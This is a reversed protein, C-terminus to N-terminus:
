IVFSIFNPRMKGCDLQRQVNMVVISCILGLEPVHLTGSVLVRGQVNCLELNATVLHAEASSAILCVRMGKLERVQALEPIANGNERFALIAERTASVNQADRQQTRSSGRICLLILTSYPNERTAHSGTSCMDLFVHIRKPLSAVCPSM